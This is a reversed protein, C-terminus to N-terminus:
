LRSESTKQSLEVMTGYAMGKPAVKAGGKSKVRCAAGQAKRGCRHAPLVLLTGWEVDHRLTQLALSCPFPPSKEGHLLHYRGTRTGTSQHALPRWGFLLGCKQNGSIQFPIDTRELYFVVDPEGIDEFSDVFHLNHQPPFLAQLKKPAGYWYVDHRQLLRSLLVGSRFVEGDSIGEIKSDRLLETEGTKVILCRM